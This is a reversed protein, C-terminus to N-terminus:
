TLTIYRLVGEVRLYIRLLTKDLIMEGEPVDRLLPPSSLSYRLKKTAFFRLLSQFDTFTSVEEDYTGARLFPQHPNVAAM